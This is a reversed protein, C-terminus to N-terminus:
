IGWETLAYQENNYSADNYIEIYYENGRREVKGIKWAKRLNGPHPTGKGVPTRKKVKRLARMAMELLFDEIFKGIIDQGVVNEFTKAFDKFAGFDVKGWKAM